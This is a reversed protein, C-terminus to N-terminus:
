FRLRHMKEMFRKVREPDVPNAWHGGRKFHSGIIMANADLYHEVNDYTVGSGILVPITVSKAVDAFVSLCFFCCCCFFPEHSDLQVLMDLLLGVIKIRTQSLYSASKTVLSLAEVLSLSPSDLARASTGLWRVCWLSQGMPGPGLGQVLLKLGSSSNQSGAPLGGFQAAPNPSM